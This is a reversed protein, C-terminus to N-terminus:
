VGTYWTDLGRLQIHNVDFRVLGQLHTHNVDLCVLGQLLTHSIEYPPLPNLFDWIKAVDM